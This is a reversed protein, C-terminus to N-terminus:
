IMVVIVLGKTTFIPINHLM